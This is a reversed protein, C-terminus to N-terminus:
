KEDLNNYYGRYKLNQEERILERYLVLIIQLIYNPDVNEQKLVKLPKRESVIFNLNKICDVFGWSVLTKDM